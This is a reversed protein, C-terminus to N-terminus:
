RCYAHHHVNNKELIVYIYIDDLDMFDKVEYFSTVHFTCQHQNSLIWISKRDIHCYTIGVQLGQLYKISVEICLLKDLINM